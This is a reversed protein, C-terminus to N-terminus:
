APSAFLFGVPQIRASESCVGYPCFYFFFPAKSFILLSAPQSSPTRSPRESPLIIIIWGPLLCTFLFDRAVCLQPPTVGTTQLYSSTTKNWVTWTGSGGVTPTTPLKETKKEDTPNNWQLVWEGSLYRNTHSQARGILIHKNKNSRM